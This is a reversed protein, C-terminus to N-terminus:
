PDEEEEDRKEDDAEEDDDCDEHDDSYHCSGDSHSRKGDESGDRSGKGSQEEDEQDRDDLFVKRYCVPESAAGDGSESPERTGDTRTSAAAVAAKRCLFDENLHVGHLKDAFRKQAAQKANKQAVQELLLPRGKVREEIEKIEQQYEKRRQRDQKRFEQLKHGYTHILALHPDNASARKQVLKQLKKEREKQRETWRAEEQEARRRRELAQRVAEHRKKSADTDKAPLLEMSGSLSSCLSSNATHSSKVYPWRLAQPSGREKEVEALIRERHSPIQATRLQFPECATTPKVEKTREVHKQFRKFSADFDPVDKNIHPRHTFTQPQDKTKKSEALRKTLTSPPAAASFLMEQARMQKKISRYLQEEKRLEGASAAYVSRPVPKAKFPKVREQQSPEQPQQQQRQEKKLRERELFSFPKTKLHREERMSRRQAQRRERLDDYLPLHVHAPVPSARFKNQCESMEELQRRLEANELEVESRTKIGRRRREAERLTMRFPKPVTARPVSRRQPRFGGRDGPLSASLHRTRPSLKFDTWMNKIFEKPSFLQGKEVDSGSADDEDSSAPSGFSRRLEAASHSKRLHLSGGGGSGHQHRPTNNTHLQLKHHYMSELEAMTRLHAKKLEELKSYYEENSFFIDRLNVREGGAARWDKAAPAAGVAVRNNCGEEYAAQDKKDQYGDRNDAYTTATYPAEKDREYSALPARTHPDVPRKLCSTVLANDRHASAM